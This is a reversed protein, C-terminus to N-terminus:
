PPNAGRGPAPRLSHNIGARGPLAPGCDGSSVSGRHRLPHAGPIARYRHCPDRKRRTQVRLFGGPAPLSPRDRPDPALARNDPHARCQVISAGSGPRWSKGAVGPAPRRLPDPMNLAGCLAHLRACPLLTPPLEPSSCIECHHIAKRSGGFDRGWARLGTLGRLASCACRGARLHM